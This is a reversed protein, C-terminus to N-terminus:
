GHRREGSDGAVLVGTEVGRMVAHAANKAGLKDFMRRVHTKITTESLYMMAKMKPVSYGQALLRLM